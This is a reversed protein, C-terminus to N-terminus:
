LLQLWASVDAESPRSAHLGTCIRFANTITRVNNEPFATYWVQTPIQHHRTWRKFREGDRAGQAVILYTKPFAEVSSWALTLGINAKDILDGLYNDWSGDFNSFFMLRRNDLIVWRAFHITPIRGLHGRNFTLTALGNIGWMAFKLMGLRFMGPRITVIHTLQNQSFHDEKSELASSSPPSLPLPRRKKDDDLEYLRQIGLTGIVSGAYLAGLGSLVAGTLPLNLAMLAAGGGGLAVAPLALAAVIKIAASRKPGPDSGAADTLTDVIVELPVYPVENAVPVEVKEDALHQQIRERITMKSLTRLEDGHTDLYDQIRQRVALAQRVTGLTQGPYARYFAAAPICRDLLFQRVFADDAPERWGKCNSYIARLGPGFLGVLEHIYAPAELDHNSEWVLIPSFSPDNEVIVWRAFYTSPSEAFRVHPNREMDADIAALVGRLEELRKPDIDAVVTLAFPGM